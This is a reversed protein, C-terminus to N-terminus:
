LFLFGPVWGVRREREARRRVGTPVKALLEMVVSHDHAIFFFVSDRIRAEPTRCRHWTAPCCNTTRRLLPLSRIRKGVGQIRRRIVPRRRKVNAMLNNRVVQVLQRKAFSSPEHMIGVHLPGTGPRISCRPMVLTCVPYGNVIRALVLVSKLPNLWNASRAFM